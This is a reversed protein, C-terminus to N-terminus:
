NLIHEVSWFSIKCMDGCNCQRSTHLIYNHDISYMEFWLVAFKPGIKFEILIDNTPRPGTGNGSIGQSWVNGPWWYGHYLFYRPYIPDTNKLLFIEIVQMETNLFSLFHLYIQTTGLM